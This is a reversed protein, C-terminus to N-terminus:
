NIYKDIFKFVTRFYTERDYFCSCVHEGEPVTYMEKPENAAEYLLNVNEFPVYSDGKAHIFLIPINSKQLQKCTDAKLFSYGAKKRAVIDAANLIPFSPIHYAEKLLTKQISGVSSYGSDEICAKVNDPLDEGCAMMVAAAGMSLGFLVVSGRPALYNLYECWKKIDLRELWGMGVYEGESKGHARLDVFLVNYGNNYFDPLYCHLDESTCNYGHAILVYRDSNVKRFLEGYLKIGDDATIYIEEKPINSKLADAEEVMVKHTAYLGEIMGKDKTKLSQERRKQNSYKKKGRKIAVNVYYNGALVLFGFGLGAAVASSIIINRTLKNM